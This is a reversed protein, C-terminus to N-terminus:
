NGSPRARRTAYGQGGERLSQRHDAMHRKRMREQPPGERVHEIYPIQAREAHLGHMLHSAVSGLHEAQNITADDTGARRDIGAISIKLVLGPWGADAVLLNSGGGLVFLPLNRSQAFTTAAAVDAPSRADIFFRAPGGIRFTTHPALPINEEVVM